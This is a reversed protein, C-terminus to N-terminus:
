FPACCLLKLPERKRKTQCGSNTSDPKELFCDCRVGVPNMYNSAHKALDLDCAPFVFTVTEKCLSCEVLDMPSSQTWSPLPDEVDYFTEGFNFRLNTM